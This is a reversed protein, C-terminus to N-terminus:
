TRAMTRSRSRVRRSELKATRRSPHLVPPDHVACVTPGSVPFVPVSPAPLAPWGALIILAYPRTLRSSSMPRVPQDWSATPGAPRSPSSTERGSALSRSVHVAEGEISLVCNIEMGKLGQEEAKNVNFFERTITDKSADRHARLHHPLSM